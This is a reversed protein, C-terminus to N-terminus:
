VKGGVGVLVVEVEFEVDLEESVVVVEGALCIAEERAAVAFGIEYVGAAVVITSRASVSFAVYLVRVSECEHDMARSVPLM